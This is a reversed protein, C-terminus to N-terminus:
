PLQVEPAFLTVHLGDPTTLRQNRHGWPTDVVDGLLTAGHRALREGAGDPDTVRFALRFPGSRHEGAEIADIREAQPTDIIEVTAQGASLVVGRGDPDDWGDIVTLGLGDRFLRVTADYARASLVVRLEAPPTM